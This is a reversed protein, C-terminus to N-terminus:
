PQREYAGIDDYAPIGGGINPAQPDDARGKGSIDLAPTGSSTGADIGASGPALEYNGAAPDVFALGSSLETPANPGWGSGGGVYNYGKTLGTVTATDTRLLSQLVNNLIAVNSTAGQFVVGGTNSWVTNSVIRLGDVDYLNMAYYGGYIGYIVNNEITVDSVAGDKIFIGQANMNHILNGRIVLGLGGAYTRIGDSHVVGDWRTVNAIDNGEVLLNRFNRANVAVRGVNDFRNRRITVDSIAPETSSSSFFVGDWTPSAIDNDEFLVDQVGAQVLSGQELVGGVLQMHASGAELTVRATFCLGQFRLYSSGATQVGAVQVQNEDGPYARLTVYSAKAVSSVNLFPYTGRRVWVQSGSPAAAVARDLTCWPTSPSSAQDLSRADSCAGGLGAQDVFLGTPTEVTGGGSGSGTTGTSPDAPPPDSGISPLGVVALTVPSSASKQGQPNRATVVVRVSHGVDAATLLYGQQGAGGIDACSAGTVTCRQWRYSYSIPSAGAWAGSSAALSQGELALGSVTPASVLRLNRLRSAAAKRRVARRHRRAKARRHHVDGARSGSAHSHVSRGDGSKAFTPGAQTALLGGVAMAM